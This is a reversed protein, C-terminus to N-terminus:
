VNWVDDVTANIDKPIVYKKVANGHEKRIKYYENQSIVNMNRKVINQILYGLKKCESVSKEYVINEIPGKFNEDDLSKQNKIQRLMQKYMVKCNKLCSTTKKNEYNNIREIEEM